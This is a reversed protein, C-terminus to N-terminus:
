SYKFCDLHRQDSLRIVLKLIVTLASQATETHRGRERVIFARAWQNDTPSNAQPCSNVGRIGGWHGAELIFCFEGRVLNAGKNAKSCRVAPGWKWHCKWKSLIRLGWTELIVRALNWLPLAKCATKEAVTNRPKSNVSGPYCSFLWLHSHASSRGHTTSPHTSSSYQGIVRISRGRGRTQM